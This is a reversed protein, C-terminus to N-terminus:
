GGDTARRVLFILIVIAHYSRSICVKFISTYGDDTKKAAMTGGVKCTRCFFNCKLGGHSCEEAQMPNDGAHFLDYPILMIEEQYKSDWALVGTEAAKRQTDSTLVTALGLPPADCRLSDRFGQMLELPAAHPSSSVFRVCFEKELMERPMSANSMYIVHHKNWQKSVNASVDDMFIILPVTLVLRGGSKTRLPNPMRKLFPTSSESIRMREVGTETFLTSIFRVQSRLKRRTPVVQFNRSRALFPQSPSSSKSQILRLGKRCLTLHFQSFHCTESSVDTQFVRHGLSLVETEPTPGVRAQFLKTPIFYGKASQQLLEYVFFIKGDVRVSPPALDDPLGMLMKSGHQVQSMRGQGDEPYDQM